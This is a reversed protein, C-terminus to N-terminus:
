QRDKGALSSIEETGTTGHAPRLARARPRRELRYQSRTRTTGLQEFRSAGLHYSLRNSSPRFKILSIDNKNATRAPGSGASLAGPQGFRTERTGARANSAQTRAEPRWPGRPGPPTHRQRTRSRGWRRTLARRPPRGNGCNESGGAKSLSTTPDSLFPLTSKSAVPVPPTFSSHSFSLSVPM